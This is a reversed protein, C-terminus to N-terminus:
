LSRLSHIHQVHRDTHAAVFLVWQYADMAGAVPHELAHDRLAHGAEVFAITQIRAMEFQRLSESGSQGTPRLLAPAEGLKTRQADDWELIRADLAVTDRDSTPPPAALLKPILREAFLQELLALHEVHGAIPWGRQDNTATWQADTLGDCARLLRERSAELRQRAAAIDTSTLAVRETSTKM